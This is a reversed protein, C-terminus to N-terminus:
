EFREIRVIMKFYKEKSDTLQEHSNHLDYYGRWKSIGGSHILVVFELNEDNM